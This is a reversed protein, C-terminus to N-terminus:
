LKSHFHPDFPSFLSKQHNPFHLHHPVSLFTLSSKLNRVISAKLHVILSDLRDQLLSHNVKGEENNLCHM